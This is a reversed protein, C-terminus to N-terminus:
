YKISHPRVEDAIDDAVAKDHNEAARAAGALVCAAGSDLWELAVAEM